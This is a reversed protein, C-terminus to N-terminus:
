SASITEVRMSSNVLVPSRAVQSPVPLLEGGVEGGDVEDLFEGFVGLEGIGCEDPNKSGDCVGVL